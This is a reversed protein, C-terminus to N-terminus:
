RESKRRFFDITAGLLALLLFVGAIGFCIIIVWALLLPIDAFELLM